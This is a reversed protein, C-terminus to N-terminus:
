PNMSRGLRSIGSLEQARTFICNALKILRAAWSVSNLAQDYAVNGKVVRQRLTSPAQAGFLVGCLSFSM